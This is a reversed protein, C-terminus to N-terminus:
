TLWRSRYIVLFVGLLMGIVISGVVRRKVDPVVYRDADPVMAPDVIRFAYDPRTKALTRQRMYNEVVSYLARRLEVINTTSIEKGLYELAIDSQEIDRQRIVANGKAVLQNAWEVAVYRDPWDITLYLLGSKRDKNIRFIKSRFLEYGDQLSPVSDNVSGFWRGSPRWESRGSDWRDEFLVPLLGNEDIFSELFSRSNLLALSESESSDPSGLQVGALGALGGLGLQAVGAFSSGNEARVYSMTVQARYIPTSFFSWAGGVLAGLAGFLLPYILRRYLSTLAHM